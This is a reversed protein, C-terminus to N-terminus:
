AIKGVILKRLNSVAYHMRGLATNISVNQQTAIDKFSMGEWYHMKVVYVQEKPLREVSEEVATLLEEREEAEEPATDIVEAHRSVEIDDVSEGSDYGNRAAIRRYHDFVINHAIRKVWSLYKENHEYRGERLCLLVKIYTEQAFDEALTEDKALSLIYMFVQPRYREYLAVFAMESGSGVLGVLQEDTHNVMNEM